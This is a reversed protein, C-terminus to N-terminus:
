APRCSSAAAFREAHDEPRQDVRDCRGARSREPHRGPRSSRCAPCQRAPVPPPNGNPPAYAYGPYYYGYNPDAYYPYGYGYGLGYGVGLGLGFGWGYGGWGYGYGRYGYPGYGRYGGGYVGGRGAVGVTHGAGGGHGEAAVVTSSGVGFVIGAIILAKLSQFASRQGKM